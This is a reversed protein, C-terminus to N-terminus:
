AMAAELRKLFSVEDAAVGDATLLLSVVRLAESKSAEDAFVATRAKIFADTADTSDSARRARATANLLFIDRPKTAEWGVQEVANALAEDEKLSVHADAFMALMLLDLLSERQSQNM